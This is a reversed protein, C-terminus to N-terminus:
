ENIECMVRNFLPAKLMFTLSVGVYISIWSTSIFTPVRSDEEAQDLAPGLWLQGLQRSFTRWQAVPQGVINLYQGKLTIGWSGPSGKGNLM